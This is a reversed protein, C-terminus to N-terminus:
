DDRAARAHELVEMLDQANALHELHELMTLASEVDDASLVRSACTRFKAVREQRSMPNAISGRYARCRAAVDRGDRLHARAEVWLSLMDTPIDPNPVVHIRDLMDEVAPSFRTTDAFSDIGVHGDV